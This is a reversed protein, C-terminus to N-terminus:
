QSRGKFSACGDNRHKWVPNPTLICYNNRGGEESFFRCSGCREDTPLHVISWGMGRQAMGRWEAEPELVELNRHASGTGETTEPYEACKIAYCENLLEIIDADNLERVNQPIEPAKM